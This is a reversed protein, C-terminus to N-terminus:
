VVHREGEEEEAQMSPQERIPLSFTFSNGPGSSPDVWIEGGHAEIIGKCISLGLGTGDTSKSYQLRYFKEFVHDREHEPILPGHDAVTVLLATESTRVTLSIESGPPSYKVGNELLNILVHEILAFDAAVLPLDPPIDIRMPRDRVADHMERLTVGVIDQIDCWETKLRLTDSELRAMDLLNAVFRNLRTAGEKIMELFAKTTEGNRVSEAELLGTVAGMVSAIPTRLDHSISNLLARHLKDSEMLWQVREAEQALRIRTIAVAALNALAEVLQAQESPLAEHKENLDIMLAAMTNKGAKAPFVLETAKRLTETGRGAPRGHELVWQVVAQEKESLRTGRRPHAAVERLVLSGKEPMLISVQGGAAEAATRAFTQAIEDLDAKSAMRQSLSYLALTRKEEKRTRAVENRLRTAMTATVIGVLLFTALVALDKPDAKAFSYVPPVFFFDFALVGLFSAFLSPKLGWRVAAVLVPLVYLLTVNVIDFFPTVIKGVVTVLAVSLLPYLYAQVAPLRSRFPGVSALLDIPKEPAPTNM